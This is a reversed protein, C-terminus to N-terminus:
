SGGDAKRESLPVFNCQIKWHLDPHCIVKFQYEGDGMGSRVLVRRHETRGGPISAAIISSRGQKLLEYIGSNKFIGDMSDGAELDQDLFAFLGTDSFADVTQPMDHARSLTTWIEISKNLIEDSTQQLLVRAQFPSPEKFEIVYRFKCGDTILLRGSEIRFAALEIWKEGIIAVSGYRSQRLEIVLALLLLVFGIGLCPLRLTHFISGLGCLTMALIAIKTTWKM